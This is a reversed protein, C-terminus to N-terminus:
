FYGAYSYYVDYGEQTYRAGCWPGHYYRDCPVSYDFEANATSLAIINKMSVYSINSQQSMNLSFMTAMIFLSIVISFIIKKKM